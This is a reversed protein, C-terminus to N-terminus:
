FYKEMNQEGVSIKLKRGAIPDDEQLHGAQLNHEEAGRQAEVVAGADEEVTPYRQVGHVERLGSTGVVVQQSGDVIEGHTKGTNGQSFHLHRQHHGDHKKSTDIIRVKWLAFLIKVM